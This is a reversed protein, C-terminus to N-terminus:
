SPGKHSRSLYTKSKRGQRRSRDATGGENESGGVRMSLVSMGTDTTRWAHVSGIGSVRAAPEM